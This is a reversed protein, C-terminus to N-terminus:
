GEEEDPWAKRFEEEAYERDPRHLDGKTAELMRGLCVEGRDHIYQALLVLEEKVEEGFYEMDSAEIMRITGRIEIKLRLIKALAEGDGKPIGANDVQEQLRKIDEDRKAIKKNWTEHTDYSKKELKSKNVEHVLSKVVERLEKGGKSLDYEKNNIEIKEGKVVADKVEEPLLKVERFFKQNLGIKDTLVVFDGTGFEEINKVWEYAVSRNIKRAECYDKFFKFGRDKYLQRKHIYYLAMATQIQKLRDQHELSLLYGELFDLGKDEITDTVFSVTSERKQRNLKEIEQQAALGEQMEDTMEIEKKM